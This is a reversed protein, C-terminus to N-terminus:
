SCRRCTCCSFADSQPLAHHGHRALGMSPHKSTQPLICAAWLAHLPALCQLPLSLTYLISIQITRCPPRPPYGPGRKCELTFLYSDRCAICAGVPRLCGMMSQWAPGSHERKRQFLAGLARQQWGGARPAAGLGDPHEWICTSLLIGDCGCIACAQRSPFSSHHTLVQSRAAGGPSAVGATTSSLPSRPLAEAAM